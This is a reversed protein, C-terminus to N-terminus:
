FIFVNYKGRKYGLVHYEINQELETANVSIYLINDSNNQSLSLIKYENNEPKLEKVLIIKINFMEAIKNIEALRLLQGRLNEFIVGNENLYEVSTEYM